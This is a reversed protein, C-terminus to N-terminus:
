LALKVAISAGLWCGSIVVALWSARALRPPMSRRQLVMGVAIVHFPVAVGVAVALAHMWPSAAGAPLLEAALTGTLADHLARALLVVGAAAIGTGVIRPLTTRM